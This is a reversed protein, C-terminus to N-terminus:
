REFKAGAPHNSGHVLSHCQLCSRGNAQDSPSQGGAPILGNGTTVHGKPLNAGSYLGKGHDSTHCTQCLMPARTKLLPTVNSGHPSHCNTCDEVAPAHEWLFPGRKEAHCTYCTENITNKVMLRPGTSGHPNHCDSCSVKGELIPHRSFRHFQARENQHCSFCVEPQTLKNLVKQNPNHLEHCDACAVGHSEHESGSWNERPLIRSEHCALCAANRKEASSLRKSKAGFVVDPSKEGPDDQHEASEGHCSQCGPTRGDGKVGHKTHYISPESTKWRKNHCVTCNKDGELSRDVEAMAPIAGLLGGALVCLTLFRRPIKM